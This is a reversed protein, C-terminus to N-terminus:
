PIKDKTHKHKKARSLTSPDLLAEIGDSIGKWPRNDMFELYSQIKKATEDDASNLAVTKLSKKDPNSTFEYEVKGWPRMTGPNDKSPQSFEFLCWYNLHLKTNGFFDNEDKYYKYFRANSCLLNQSRVAKVAENRLRLGHHYDAIFGASVLGIGSAVIKGYM